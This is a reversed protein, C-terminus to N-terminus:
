EACFGCLIPYYGAIRFGTKPEFFSPFFAALLRFTSDFQLLLLDLSAAKESGAIWGSREERRKSLNKPSPCDWVREMVTMPARYKLIGTSSGPCTNKMSAMEM